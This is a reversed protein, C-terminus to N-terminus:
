FGTHMMFNSAYLTNFKKYKNMMSWLVTPVWYINIGEPIVGQLYQKVGQLIFMTSSLYPLLTHCKGIYLVIYIGM